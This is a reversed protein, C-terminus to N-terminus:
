LHPARCALRWECYKCTKVDVPDPYFLGSKMEIIMEQFKILFEAEVKEKEELTGMTKKAYGMGLLRPDAVAFGKKSVLDPLQWYSLNEVKAAWPESSFSQAIHNYLLLQFEKNEVWSGFSSYNKISSKYDVLWLQNTKQNKLIRDIVGSIRVTDPTSVKSFEYRRWDYYIEWPWEVVVSKLEPFQARLQVEHEIFKIVNEFYSKKVLNWTKESFGTPIIDSFDSQLRDLLLKKSEENLGNPVLPQIYEAEKVIIKEFLSHYWSGKERANVDFSESEVSRLKLIRQFFFKQRCDLFTQISSPSLSIESLSFDTLQPTLQPKADWRQTDMKFDQKRHHLWMSESNSLLWDWHTKQPVDMEKELMKKQFARNQWQPAPNQISSDIAKYAYSLVAQGKIQSLLEELHYSSISLDPHALYVGLETNLNFIDDAPIAEKFQSQFGTEELGLVVVNHLDFLSVQSLSTLQIGDPQKIGLNVTAQLAVKEIQKLWEEMSFVLHPSSSDFLANIIKEKREGLGSREWFLETSKIFDHVNLEANRIEKFEELSTAMHKRFFGPLWKDILDLLTDAALFPSNLKEEIKGFSGIKENACYRVLSEKISSFEIEEKFFSLDSLLERIDQFEIYLSKKNQNVPVDEALLQWLLLDQYKRIDPTVIAMKDWSIGQRHWEKLTTIAYRGEAVASSFKKLEIEVPKEETKSLNELLDFREYAQVLHTYNEDFSHVTQFIIIDHNKALKQLLDAELMGYEIGLDFYLRPMPLTLNSLDATQLYAVIWDECIINNELFFNLFLKNLLLDPKLRLKREQSAELWEGLKGSDLNPDLLLSAYYTISRLRSKEDIVDISLDTKLGLIKRKLFAEAFENSVIKIQPFAREFITRYFTRHWQLSIDLFYGHKALIYQSMSDRDSSKSVVWSEKEIDINQFHEWVQSKSHIKILKLV